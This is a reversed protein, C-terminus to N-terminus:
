RVGVWVKVTADGTAADEACTGVILGRTDLATQLGAEITTTYYTSVGGTPADPGTYVTVAGDTSSLMVLQGEKIAGAVKQVEICGMFAAGITHVSVASYDHAELAIYLKEEDVTNPAALFGNGDNYIVEGKEIDENAKVTVKEVVLLAEKIIDGAGM